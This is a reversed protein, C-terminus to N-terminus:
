ASGGVKAALLTTVQSAEAAVQLMFANMAAVYAIREPEPLQALEAGLVRCLATVQSARTVPERTTARRLANEILLIESPKSDRQLIGIWADARASFEDSEPGPTVTPLTMDTM